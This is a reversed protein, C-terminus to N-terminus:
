PALYEIEKLLTTKRLTDIKKHHLILEMLLSEKSCKLNTILSKLINLKELNITDIDLSNLYSLVSNRTENLKKETLGEIMYYKPSSLPTFSPFLNLDSKLFYEILTPIHDFNLISLVTHVNVEINPYKLSEITLSQYNSDITKWNCPFRIYEARAGIADISIIVEIKKFHETFKLIWDSPITLNTFVRLTITKSHEVNSLQTIFEEVNKSLAPEGGSIVVLSKHAINEIIHDKITNFKEQFERASLGENNVHINLSNLEKEIKQSYAPKCSFCSLNCINEFTIDVYKLENKKQHNSFIKQYYKRPSDGTDKELQFCATCNKPVEGQESSEKVEKLLKFNSLSKSYDESFGTHDHCCLRRRLGADFSLAGDWLPCHFKNTM